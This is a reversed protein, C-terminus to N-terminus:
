EYRPLKEGWGSQLKKERALLTGLTRNQESQEAEPRMKWVSQPRREISVDAQHMSLKLSTRTHFNLVNTIFKRALRKLGSAM